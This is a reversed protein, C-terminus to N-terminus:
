YTSPASVIRWGSRKSILVSDTVSRRMEEESVPPQIAKKLSASLNAEEFRVRRYLAEFDIGLRDFLLVGVSPGAARSTLSNEHGVDHRVVHDSLM